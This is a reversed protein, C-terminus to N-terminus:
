NNNMIFKEKMVHGDVAIVLMYNGANFQNVNLQIKNLGAHAEVTQQKVQRGIEDYYSILVQQPKEANFIGYTNAARSAVNPAVLMTHELEVQIALSRIGLETVTGDFDTQSLKYYLKESLGAGFDTFVYSRIDNHNGVSTVKAFAEWHYGDESRFLEFYNNNKESAVDWTLQVDRQNNNLEFNVLEVGLPAGGGPNVGMGMQAWPAPAAESGGKLNTEGNGRLTGLFGNGDIKWKYLTSTLNDRMSMANSVKTFKSGNNYLPVQGPGKTVNGARVAVMDFTFLANGPVANLTAETSNGSATVIEGFPNLTNVGIFSTSGTYIEGSQNLTVKVSHVGIDPNVMYYMYLKVGESAVMKVFSLNKNNYTVSSVNKDEVSISVILLNGALNIHTWNISQKNNGYGTGVGAVLGDAKVEYVCFSLMMLITMLNLKMTKM